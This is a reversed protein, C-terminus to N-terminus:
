RRVLANGFARDPKAVKLESAPRAGRARGSAQAARARGLEGGAARLDSGARYKGAITVLTFVSIVAWLSCCAVSRRNQVTVLSMRQSLWPACLTGNQQYDRTSGPPRSNKLRRIIASV